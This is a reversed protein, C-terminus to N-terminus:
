RMSEDSAASMQLMPKDSNIATAIIPGTCICVQGGHATAREYIDKCGKGAGPTQMSTKKTTFLQSLEKIFRVKDTPTERQLARNYHTLMGPGDDFVSAFILFKARKEKMVLLHRKLEPLWGFRRSVIDEYEINSRRHDITMRRFSLAWFNARESLFKGSINETSTQAAHLVCNTFAEFIVTAFRTRELRGIKQADKGALRLLVNEFLQYLPSRKKSDYLYPLYYNEGRMAHSGFLTYSKGSISSILDGGFPNGEIWGSNKLIQQRLQDLYQTPLTADSNLSVAATSVIFAVMFAYPDDRYTAHKMIPMVQSKLLRDVYNSDMPQNHLTTSYNQLRIFNAFADKGVHGGVFDKTQFLDGIELDTQM